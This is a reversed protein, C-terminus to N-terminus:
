DSVLLDNRERQRMVGCRERGKEEGMETDREREM